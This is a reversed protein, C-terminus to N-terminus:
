YRAVRTAPCRGNVGLARAGRFVSSPSTWNTYLWYAYQQDVLDYGTLNKWESPPTDDFRGGPQFVASYHGHAILLPYRATPHEDFGWPLLVCAELTIPTGWFRTLLASEKRVTRIYQTDAGKGSCGPSKAQPVEHALELNVPGVRGGPEVLVYKVVSSYLTGPPSGYAGDGGADSVCSTPLTLNAGDGRVYVKYPFLEAQVCYAGAPVRAMDVRPYGITSQTISVRRGAMLGGAPTDVAFVQSTDQNDSCQARPPPDGANCRNSLYVRVRGLTTSRGQPLSVTFATDSALAATAAAYVLCAEFVMLSALRRAAVMITKALLLSLEIIIIRIRHNYLITYNYLNYGPIYSNRGNSTCYGYSQPPIYPVQYPIGYISYRYQISVLSTCYM